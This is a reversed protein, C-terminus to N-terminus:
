IQLRSVPFTHRMLFIGLFGKVYSHLLQNSIHRSHPLNPNAIQNYFSGLPEKKNGNLDVEDARRAGEGECPSPSEEKSM